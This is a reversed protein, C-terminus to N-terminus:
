QLPKGQQPAHFRLCHAETMAARLSLLYLEQAGPCLSLLQPSHLESGGPMHSRGLCPISGTDGATAPPNKVVSGGTFGLIKQNMTVIM